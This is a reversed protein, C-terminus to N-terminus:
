PEGLWSFSTIAMELLDKDFWSVVDVCEFVALLVCVCSCWFCQVSMVM